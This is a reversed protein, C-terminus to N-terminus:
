CHFGNLNCDGSDEEHGQSIGLCRSACKGADGIGGCTATLSVVAAKAMVGGKDSLGGLANDFVAMSLVESVSLLESM